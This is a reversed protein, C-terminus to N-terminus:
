YSYNNQGANSGESKQSYLQCQNQYQTAAAQFATVESQVENNEAQADSVASPSVFDGGGALTNYDVSQGNGYTTSALTGNTANTQSTTIFDQINQYALTASADELELNSLLPQIKQTIDNGIQDVVPTDDVSQCYSLASAYSSSATLVLTVSSQIYNQAQTTNDLAGSLGTSINQAAQQQVAVDNAEAQQEIQTIYSNSSAGSASSGSVAALGQTLVQKVLQAFLANVIANINDAVDLQQLPSNAAFNLQQSIFSGPTQTQCNEGAGTGPDSRYTGVSGAPASPILSGGTAINPALISNLQATAQQTQAASATQPSCSQWSLFGGSQNLLNQNLVKKGNIQIALDAKSQVYGGYFSNQPEALTAFSQWGGQSFDGATFGNITAGQINSIVKSLTCTYPNNLNAQDLALSLRINLAIPSCLASLPSGPGGIFNGAVNDGIGLLFGEPDQVFSPSGQFGSNIWNVISLTLQRALQKLLVNELTNLIYNQTYNAYHYPFNLIDSTPVALGAAQADATKPSSGASVSVVTIVLFVAVIKKHISKM